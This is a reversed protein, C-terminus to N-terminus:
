SSSKRGQRGAKLAFICFAGFFPKIKTSPHAITTNLPPASTWYNPLTACCDAWWRCLVSIKNSCRNYHAYPRITRRLSYPSINADHAFAVFYLHKTANTSLFRPLTRGDPLMVALQHSKRPKQRAKKDATRRPPAACFLGGDRRLSAAPPGSGREGAPFPSPLPFPLFGRSACGSRASAGGALLGRRRPVRRFLLAPPRRGFFAALPPRTGGAGAARRIAARRGGRAAVFRPLPAAAVAVAAACPRAFGARGSGQAATTYKPAAAPIGRRRALAAAGPAARLRRLPAFFAAPRGGAPRASRRAPVRRSGLGRRYRTLGIRGCASGLVCCPLPKAIAPAGCRGASAAALACFAFLLRLRRTRRQRLAAARRRAGASALLARALAASRSLPRPRLGRSRKSRLPSARCFFDGAREPPLNGPM